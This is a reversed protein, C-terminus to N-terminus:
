QVNWMVQKEGSIFKLWGILISCNVLIFHYVFGLRGTKQSKIEQMWGILAGSYFLCQSAFILKYIFGEWLLFLNLPILLILFIPVSLRILKHSIMEFSFLPYKLFNMLDWHRFLARLTRNTIRIQRQFESKSDSSSAEFCYLNDNFVVRYGQRVVNLPIVLDNIDDNQLPQYLTNRMAFIAGDAGVCSGIISEHQKIFRELRTYISSTEAMREDGGSVYITSGTVLGVTPDSLYNVMKKIADQQYMSDADTFVLIEGKAEKVADNLGATKGRRVPQSLLVVGDKSYSKVIEDTKDTSCDSVVMIELKDNPYDLLLSNEIKKAIVDEENFASIILTVMPTSNNTFMKKRLIINLLMLAVPYIAYSYISLFISAFFIM